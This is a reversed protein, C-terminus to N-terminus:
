YVQYVLRKPRMGPGVWLNAGVPLVASPQVSLGLFPRSDNHKLTSLYTSNAM